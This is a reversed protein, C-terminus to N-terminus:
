KIGIFPTAQGWYQPVQGNWKNIWRLEIVAPNQALAQGEILIAEAKGKAEEIAQQAEFKVQELKNKAALANQEATVKAEIAQNFTNSFDFNTINFEDVIIDHVLLRETLLLKIKDRVAERKTILEEATFTATSAKVTEQVAPDIIRANYEKGVEQWIKNVGEPRIHYNLAITSRVEQLDKSAAGADVQEKQIQVDISKVKQIIPLKIFLGEGFIKDEVKGFTLLVGRHGAKITGFSGFLIVLAVILLVVHGVIKGYFVRTIGSEKNTEWYKM